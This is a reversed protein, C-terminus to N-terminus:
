SRREGVDISPLVIEDEGLRLTLMYVRGGRIGEIRFEGLADLAVAQETAAPGGDFMSALEVVGSEDPGLIQGTMAFSGGNAMPTIRVDIDRGEASFLLHRIESSAARVGSALSAQSWSDFTLVAVARKLLAQAAAPVLPRAAHWQAIAARVLAPPADPLAVARQVLQAFEDESMQDLPKM